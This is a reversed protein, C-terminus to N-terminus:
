SFESEIASLEQLDQDMEALSILRVDVAHWGRGKRGGVESEALFTDTGTWETRGILLFTVQWDSRNDDIERVIKNAQKILDKLSDRVSLKHWSCTGLILSRDYEDIGIIDVSWSRTWEGGVAEIKPLDGRDSADAVWDHCMEPWINTNIFEALNDQINELVQRQKGRALQSAYAALFRYYFRLYPDTVVYRGHRTDQNRKSVPVIRQVFDTQRLNHLYSSLSTSKGGIREAIERPTWYGDSIARMIGVYTYPDSIFDQLLLRPEDLLWSGSTTMQQELNDLVSLNPNLREWYAPIGGWIAYVQLREEASYEPFFRGTAGYPMPQLKMISTARGYFPASHDVLHQQMLGMQSGCIAVMLNTGSLIHDWVKQLTGPFNLDADILYTVEDILIAIRRDEAARAIEHFATEWSDYTFEKKAPSNPAVFHIVAQSFSRLQDQSATPEATWYFTDPEYREMWHTLLRTKGVRRRGYLVLLEAKPSDWLRDLTQLENKRGIFYSKSVTESKNYNLNNYYDNYFYCNHRM